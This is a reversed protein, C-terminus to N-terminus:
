ERRISQIEMRWETKDLRKQEARLPIYGLSPACWYRTTRPSGSRESRYVVTALNGMPTSLTEEQERLFRYERISNKNLMAFGEPPKNQLLLYILAIQISLDDQVGPKLELDVQEGDYVGAAHSKQWDFQVDSDVKGATHPNEAQYSLPEIGEPSLRMLSRQTVNDRLYLHALGSPHSISTYSWNDGQVHEFKVISTGAEIGHWSVAYTAEFPRLSTPQAGLALLPLM